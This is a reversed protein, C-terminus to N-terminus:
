IFTSYTSVTHFFLDDNLRLSDYVISKNIKRIIIKIFIGVFHLFSFVASTKKLSFILCTKINHIFILSLSLPSLCALLPPSDYFFFFFHFTPSAFSSQAM